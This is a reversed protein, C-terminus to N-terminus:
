LIRPTGSSIIGRQALSSNFNPVPRRPRSPIKAMTSLTSPRPSRGLRAESAQLLMKAKVIVPSLFGLPDFLQAVESLITRKTIKTTKNLKPVFQFHESHPNWTLGLIKVTSDEFAHLPDSSVQDPAVSQLITSHNSAWKALPFGGAKCLAILQHAISITEPLSDSGTYIDDVYRGKLLPPIVLPYRAGEDEVLQLLVRIALFPASRTGYTM